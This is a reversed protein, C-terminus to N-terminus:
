RWCRHIRRRHAMVSPYTEVTKFDTARRTGTLEPDGTPDFPGIRSDILRVTAYTNPWFTLVPADALLDIRGMELNFGNIQEAIVDMNSALIFFFFGAM